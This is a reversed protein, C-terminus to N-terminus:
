EWGFLSLSLIMLGWSFLIEMTSIELHPRHPFQSWTRPGIILVFSQIKQILLRHQPHCSLEWMIWSGITPVGFIRWFLAGKLVCLNQCICYFIRKIIWMHVLRWRMLQVKNLAKNGFDWTNLYDLMSLKKRGISRVANHGWIPCYPVLSCVRTPLKSIWGCQSEM